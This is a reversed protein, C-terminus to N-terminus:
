ITRKQWEGDYGAPRFGLTVNIALMHENEEANFTMVREVVPFRERLRRLNAIKILMGLRHGRHRRIVLTDDQDAVWPKEPNVYITTYAALEGSRRHRAVATLGIQGQERATAEVERVRAADWREAEIELGGAPSDTSMRGMIAAMQDLLEAPCQDTWTLVEYDSGAIRQAEAEADSWDQNGKLDLVSFRTTQELRYGHRLAFAAGPASEPIGGAGTVPFLLKSSAFGEPHETSSQFIHRGYGAACEEVRALLASGIGRRRRQPPVEVRLWASDLNDRLAAYCFAVGAVGARDRAVFVALTSNDTPRWDGLRSRPTPARDLNGWTDLVVADLAQCVERFESADDGDPTAPLRLELIEIEAIDGM